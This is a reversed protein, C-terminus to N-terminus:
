WKFWNSSRFKNKSRQSKQSQLPLQLLSTIIEISTTRGRVNSAKMENMNQTFTVLASNNSERIERVNTEISKQGIQLSTITKRVKAMDAETVPGSVENVKKVSVPIKTKNLGPLHCNAHHSMKSLFNCISHLLSFLHSLDKQLM